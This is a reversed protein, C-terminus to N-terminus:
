NLKLTALAMREIFFWETHTQPQWEAILGDRIANLLTEEEGAWIVKSSRLGHQFANQSVVAKGAPTTPGTSLQANRRNAEIQKESAMTHNGSKLTAPSTSFVNVKRKKNARRPQLYTSQPSPTQLPQLIIKAVQS